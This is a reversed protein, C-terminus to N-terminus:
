YDRKFRKIILIINIKYSRTIKFIEKDKIIIM